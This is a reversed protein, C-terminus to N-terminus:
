RKLISPFVNWFEVTIGARQDTIGIPVQEPSSHQDEDCQHRHFILEAPPRCKLFLFSTTVGEDDVYLVSRWM